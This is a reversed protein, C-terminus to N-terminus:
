RATRLALEAAEGWRQASMRDVIQEGISQFHLDPKITVSPKLTYLVTGDAAGKVHTGTNQIILGSGDPRQLLVTHKDGVYVTYQGGQNKAQVFHLNRPRITNSVVGAKTRKTETTPIVISKGGQTPAKTTQDEFKGLIDSRDGGGPSVIGIEAWLETKKAFHSIKVNRDVWQDRNVHFIAHMQAREAVQVDTALANLMKSMAFPLQDEALGTLWNNYQSIDVDIALTVPATM